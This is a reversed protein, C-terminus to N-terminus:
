AQDPGDGEPEPAIDLLEPPQVEGSGDDAPEFLGGPPTITLTKATLDVGSVFNKVLPLFVSGHSTRITLLDQAPLHEVGIVQGVAVGRRVATLGVLQHDYWTDPEAPLEDEAQEITLIARVVTEAVTRDPVEKFFVVPKGNYWRLEKVTLHKGFWPSSEPVQLNLVAGTAFRRAPEDTSLEIKVGGKLGHPKTLRGIRLRM